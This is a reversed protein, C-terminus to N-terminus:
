PGTSARDSSWSGSLPQRDADAHIRQAVAGDFVAGVQKKALQAVSVAVFQEGPPLVVIALFIRVEDAVRFRLM